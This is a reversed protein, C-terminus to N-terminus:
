GGLFMEVVERYAALDRGTGEFRNRGMVLVYGRHALDLAEKAKQEVMLISVGLRNIEQIKHFILEVFKPSLGATPEDLLLLGPELMLARGIAVMQQQGGSLSGAPQGRRDKLPPFLELVGDLRATLGGSRVFAGMELNEQVTLSSFVNREQPVYCLGRRVIRHPPLGVIDQGDLLIHGGRLRLLGFVAKMVTSKGAGNPGIMVVIEGPQVHLSVGDLIDVGGYGGRVDRLELVTM